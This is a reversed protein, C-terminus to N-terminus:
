GQNTLRLGGSDLVHRWGGADDSIVAQGITSGPGLGCIPPGIIGDHEGSTIVQKIGCARTPSLDCHTPGVAVMMRPDAVTKTLPRGAARMPSWVLWPPTITVPQGVTNIPSKATTVGGTIAGAASIGQM